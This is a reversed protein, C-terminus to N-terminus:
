VDGHEEQIHDDRGIRASWKEPWVGINGCIACDVIYFGFNTRKLKVKPAPPAAPINEDDFGHVPCDAASGPEIAGYYYFCSCPESM